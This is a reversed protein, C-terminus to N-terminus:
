AVGYTNCVQALILLSQQQIYPKLLVMMDIILTEMGAEEEKIQDNQTTKPQNPKTQNPNPQTTLHTRKTCCCM